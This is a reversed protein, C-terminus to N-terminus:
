VVCGRVDGGGRRGVMVCRRGDGGFELEVDEFMGEEGVVGERGMGEEEREIVWEGVGVLAGLDVVGERRVGRMVGLARRRVGGDRCRRVVFFLPQVLGIDLVLCPGQRLPEAETDAEAVAAALRM